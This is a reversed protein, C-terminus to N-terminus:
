YEEDKVMLPVDNPCLARIYHKFFPGHHSEETIGFYEDILLHVMEHFIVARAMNASRILRPNIEMYLIGRSEWVQAYCGRNRTFSIRPQPIEGGFIEANFADFLKKYTALKM